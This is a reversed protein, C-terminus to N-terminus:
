QGFSVILYNETERVSGEEPWAPMDMNEEAAQRIVEYDTVPLFHHGHMEMFRILEEDGDFASAGWNIVSLSPTQAVWIYNGRYFKELLHEDVLDAIQKMRYAKRAGLPVYAEEILNMPVQYNGIFILPKSTDYNKELELAISNMTEKASEYKLYDIYFWKNMDASQNFVLIGLCVAMAMAAIRWKALAGRIGYLLLLFGYACFLPLFQCARYLTAKGELLVLVWSAGFVAIGYVALVFDKQRVTLVIVLIIFIVCAAVYVAIPLYHLAFVGYMIFTRKIAMVLDAAGGSNGVWSMMEQVSRQRADGVLDKLSFLAIMLKRMISRLAVACAAILVGTMAAGAPNDKKGRIRRSFLALFMAVLYVVAFSEYCGIATWIFLVSIGAKKWKGTGSEEISELYFLISLASCVYGICIGNHLFYTFVESILPNSVFLCAFAAYGTDSIQERFIRKFVVSWLVAASFLLLVGIFDTFFPAYEGIDLIHNLLFLVWRGVIVNLGESFYYEYCTDDIGIAPHLVKFGYCGILVATLLLVYKKNKLLEQIDTCLKKM